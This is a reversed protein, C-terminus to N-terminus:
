RASSDPLSTGSADTMAYRANRAPDYFNNAVIGHHEPYLGTVISLHNPFTLSPFVPILRQVHVGEAALQNLHPTQAKFKQLYDWRFADLSVMILIRDRPAVTRFKQAGFFVVLAIACFIVLLFRFRLKM